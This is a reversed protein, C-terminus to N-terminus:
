DSSPCLLPSARIVTEYREALACFRGAEGPASQQAMRCYALRFAGYATEYFPVRRRIEAPFLDLFGRDLSFEIRTAAIDWAIDQPGPFFHDDFHDVADTKMAGTWEHPLMRGDLECTHADEILPRLKELPAANLKMCESLNVSIMEMLSTWPVPEKSPFASRVFNLYAALRETSPSGEGTQFHLHLFGSQIKLPATSFGARNLIQARDFARQGRTGLGAFKALVTRDPSLFKLREHQPHAAIDPKRLFERWKGASVDIWSGLGPDYHGVYISHRRFREQASRSLLRQPDPMWSPLFVIRDDPVGAAALAEAVSAFSSGSLGPGEDVVLHWAQPDITRNLRTVRNFPHGHPRVTFSDVTVGRELLAGAVAASLSTGISRIGIVVCKVPTFEDCFRNAADVYSEPFLGYYAYGEPVGTEVEAPLDLLPEPVPRQPSCFARGIEVSLNRLNRVTPHDQPLCDAIGSEMEGFRILAERRDLRRLDACVAAPRITQRQKRYIIM